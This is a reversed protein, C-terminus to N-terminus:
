HLFQLCNCAAYIAIYIYDIGSDFVDIIKYNGDGVLLNEIHLDRHCYALHNQVNLITLCNEHAKRLDINTWDGGISKEMFNGLSVENDSLLNETQLFLTYDGSDNQFRLIEPPVIFVVDQSYELSYGLMLKNSPPSSIHISIQCKEEPKTNDSDQSYLIIESGTTAWSIKSLDIIRLPPIQAHKQQSLNQSLDIQQNLGDNFLAYLEICCKNVSQYTLGSPVPSDKTAASRYLAFDAMYYNRATDLNICYTAVIGLEDFRQNNIVTPFHDQSAAQLRLLAIKELQASEESSHFKLYCRTAIQDNKRIIALTTVAGSMGDQRIFEISNCDSYIGTASALIEAIEMQQESSMESPLAGYHIYSQCFPAAPTERNVKEAVSSESTKDAMQQEYQQKLILWSEGIDKRHKLYLRSSVPPAFTGIMAYVSAISLLEEENYVEQGILSDIKGLLQNNEATARLLLAISELSDIFAPLMTLAVVGVLLKNSNGDPMLSLSVFLFIAISLAVVFSKVILRFRSKGLLSKNYFTSEAINILFRPVGLKLTASYYRKSLTVRDMNARPLNIANSLNASVFHFLEEGFADSLLAYIVAKRSLYHQDKALSNVIIAAIVLLTSIIVLIWTTMEDCFITIAAIAAIALQLFLSIRLWNQTRARAISSIQLFQKDNNKV